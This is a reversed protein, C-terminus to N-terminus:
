VPLSIRCTAGEGAKSLLEIGCDEGYLFRLRQRVNFLGIRPANAGGEPQHEWINALREAPIGCGDDAVCVILRDDNLETTIRICGRGSKPGIGHVIANEVIPQLLFVPVAIDDLDPDHCIVFQLQQPYMIQYMELYLRIYRIEDILPCLSGTRELNQRLLNALCQTAHSTQRDDHLKAMGSISELANFRFHPNIQAQLASYQFELQSYEAQRRLLTEEEVKQLLRTITGAMTNISTGIMGIEDMAAPAIRHRLDGQAIASIGEQVTAINRNIQRFIGLMVLSAFLVICSCGAIYIVTLRQLERPAYGLNVIQCLWLNSNTITEWSASYAQAGLPIDERSDPDLALFPEMSADLNHLMPAGYSDFVISGANSLRHADQYFVSADMNIIVYGTYQMSPLAFLMRSINVTGDEQARWLLRGRGERCDRKDQELNGLYDYAIPVSASRSSYFPEDNVDVAVIWNVGDALSLFEILANQISYAYAYYNEGDDQGTLCNSLLQVKYNDFIARTTNNISTTFATKTQRVLIDSLEQGERVLARYSGFYYLVASGIFLLIMVVYLALLKSTIRADRIKGSISHM